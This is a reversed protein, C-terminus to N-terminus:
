HKFKTFKQSWVQIFYYSSIDIFVSFIFLFFDSNLFNFFVALHTLCSLFGTMNNHIISLV